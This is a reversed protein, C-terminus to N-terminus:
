INGDDAPIGRADLVYDILGAVDNCYVVTRQVKTQEDKRSSDLELEVTAFFSDLRKDVQRLENMVNPEVAGRGKWSRIFTLAKETQKLSLGLTSQFRSIETAPVAEDAFLARSAGAKNSCGPKKVSLSRGRTAIKITSGDCSEPREHLLDSTVIDASGPIEKTRQALNERADNLTCAVPHSIGRGTPQWCRQCVKVPRPLPLPMPQKVVPRGRTSKQSANYSKPALGLNYPNGRAVQCMCCSCNELPTPSTRTSMSPIIIKSFDFPEQLVDQPKEGRDVQLLVKRCRACIGAPLHTDNEDYNDIYHKRIRELTLGCISVISGGKKFCVLCVKKRNQEHDLASNPM